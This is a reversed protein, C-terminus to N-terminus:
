KAKAAERDKAAIERLMEADRDATLTQVVAATCFVPSTICHHGTWSGDPSQIKALREHMRGNWTDWNEGGAIVLSESMMLYSLYEEGGNNGFGDLLRADDLRKAQAESQSWADFYDQAEEAPLGAKRLGPVSVVADPELLGSEIGQVILDSAASAQGAAGRAAGAFAYLEVGAAASADATAGPGSVQSKQYDRARVLSGAEVSKGAARAVELASCGLSSQLVPAWGGSGWSGDSEQSGQVKRICKDLAADVGARLADDKHLDRLVRALFHITMSTDVLAGMKQQPQTGLLDTIRPGDTPADEVVKVLYAVARRIAEKHPGHSSTLGARLLAVGTFATTAPDTVVAKPDRIEQHAHSGAGWGGDEHQAAVLWEVGKAVFAAPEPRAPEPRAPERQAREPEHAAEESCASASVLAAAALLFLVRTM